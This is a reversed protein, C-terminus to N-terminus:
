EEKDSLENKLLSLDTSVKDITYSIEAIKDTDLYSENEVLMNKWGDNRSLFNASIEDTYLYPIDIKNNIKDAWKEYKKLMAGKELINNLANLIYPSHTTIFFRISNGNDKLTNFMNVILEIIEKQHLPFIQAEPEEIFITHYSGYTYYFNGLRDLLLLLYVIEQQGSSAKALPIKRGDDSKLFLAGEEISIEAKLITNIIPLKRSDFQPLADILKKFEKLHYDNYSSSVALAARSAPIFTTAIPFYNGFKTLLSSYLSQKTEKLGDPTINEKKQLHEHWEKLLDILSSSEFCIENNKYFLCMNFSQENYSFIYDARFGQQKESLPSQFDFIERFDKIIKFFCKETDLNVFDNYPLVFLSQIIDEFFKLLKICLSKGAGMDGTIINFLKIEWKIHNISFFNRIELTEIPIKSM